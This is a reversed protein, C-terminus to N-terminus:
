PRRSPRMRERGYCKARDGYCRFEDVEIKQDFWDPRRSQYHRLVYKTGAVGWIGFPNLPIRARYGPLDSMAHFCNVAPRPLLTRTRRDDALYDVSARELAQIQKLALEYLEASVRYPGWVAVARGLHRAFNLSEMVTYNHGREPECNKNWIENWVAQAANRFVCIEYNLYFDAPLWSITHWEQRGSAERKVFSAFSHSQPAPNDLGQSAFPVIFYTSGPERSGLIAIEQRLMATLAASPPPLISPHKTSAAGM